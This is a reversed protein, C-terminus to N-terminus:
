EENRMGRRTAIEVTLWALAFAAGLGLVPWAALPPVSDGVRYGLGPVVEVTRLAPVGAALANLAPRV